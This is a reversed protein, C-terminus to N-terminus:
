DLEWETLSEFKADGSLYARFLDLAHEKDRLPKSQRTTVVAEGKDEEVKKAWYAVLTQKSASPFMKREIKLSEQQNLEVILSPHETSDGTWHRRMLAEVVDFSSVHMWAVTNIGDANSHWTFRPYKTEGGSEEANNEDSNPSVNSSARETSSCGNLVCALVLMAIPIM